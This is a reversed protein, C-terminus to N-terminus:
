YRFKYFNNSMGWSGMNMFIQFDIKLVGKYISIDQYPEEMSPNDHDLIFSNSQEALQYQNATKNYFLIILIRPQTLVTEIYDFDKKTIRVHDIHQIILVLDNHNDNNLDGQTSDLLTWGDPIFHNINKGKNKIIPYSFNQAFATGQVLLFFTILIRKM